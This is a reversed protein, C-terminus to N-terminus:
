KRSIMFREQYGSQNRLLSIAKRKGNWPNKTPLFGCTRNEMPQASLLPGTCGPKCTSIITCPRFLDRKLWDNAFKTECHNLKTRQAGFGQTPLSGMRTLEL